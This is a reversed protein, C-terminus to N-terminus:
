KKIKEQILLSFPVDASKSFQLHNDEISYIRDEEPADSLAFIHGNISIKGAKASPLWDYTYPAEMIFAKLTDPSRYTFDKRSTPPNENTIDQRIFRIVYRSTDLYKIKLLFVPEGARMFRPYVQHIETVLYGQANLQAFIENLNYGNTVTVLNRTQSAIRVVNREFGNILEPTRSYNLLDWIPVNKNLLRALGDMPCPAVNVFADIAPLVSDPDRIQDYDSFLLAANNKIARKDHLLARYDHWSLNSQLVFTNRFTDLSQLLMVLLLVYGM